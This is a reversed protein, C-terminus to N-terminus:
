NSSYSFFRQLSNFYTYSVIYTLHNFLIFLEVIHIVINVENIVSISSVLVLVRVPSLLFSQGGFRPSGM